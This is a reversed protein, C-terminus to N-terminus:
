PARPARRSVGVEPRDDVREALREVAEALDLGVLRRASSSRAGLTTIRWLTLSGSCVPRLAISASVGIPRPWRCSIM